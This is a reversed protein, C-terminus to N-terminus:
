ALEPAAAGRHARVLLMALLPYLLIAIGTQVMAPVAPLLTFGLLSRGLWELLGLSCAFSAFALWVTMFGQAVLSKRLRLLAAQELLLLVAWLGLPSSGLLDLLLGILGIVPAPLSSPRYLTWFYVSGTVIGARLMAQAPLLGPMALLIMAAAIMFAPTAHRAARDLMRWVGQGIM